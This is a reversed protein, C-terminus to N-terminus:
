IVSHKVPYESNLFDKLNLNIPSIARLKAVIEPVVKIVLDIEEETTHRGLTFRMSGHAAEYSLGIGVIVHSPELSGSTCASGTSACIGYQDLYLLMAEGEIDLFTINANNPLRETPHGNLLAKPTSALIGDILKDRLKTLRKVEMEKTEQALKFAETLGIIGALNETGSRRNMEQGGGHMIPHLLVRQNAYLIASGKPGYLKSGNITMLDVNLNKVSSDLYGAAQCADVHFYVKPHVAKLAAGIAAINNITGIENNAYMISVLLTDPRIAALVDETKVQGYRNVPIYSIELGDKTLYEMTHLVAHHEITTTVMHRGRKKNAQWIGQIALNVSETGSGCFIIESAQCHLINALDIRATTLAANAERGKHYLSSPNGYIEGLYPEMAVKVRSDMPTAAAHDLYITKTM